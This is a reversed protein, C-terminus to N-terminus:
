LKKGNIPVQFKEAYATAAESGTEFAQACLREFEERTVQLRLAKVVVSDLAVDFAMVAHVNSRDM